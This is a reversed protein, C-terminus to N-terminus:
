RVTVLLGDCSRARVTYVYTLTLRGTATGHFQKGPKTVFDQEGKTTLVDVTLRKEM